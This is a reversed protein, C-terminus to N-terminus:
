DSYIKYVIWIGLLGGVASGFLSWMSLFSAGFLVPLYGGIISGVIMGLMFIAKSSM